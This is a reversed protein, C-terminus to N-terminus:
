LGPAYYFPEQNIDYLKLNYLLLPIFYLPM